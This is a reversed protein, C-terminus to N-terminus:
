KLNIYLFLFYLEPTKMEEPVHELQWGEEEIAARCVEATREHRCIFEL